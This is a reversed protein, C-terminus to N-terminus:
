PLTQTQESMTGVSIVLSTQTGHNQTDFCLYDKSPPNALTSAEKILSPHNLSLGRQGTSSRLDLGFCHLRNSRVRSRRGAFSVNQGWKQCHSAWPYIDLASKRTM